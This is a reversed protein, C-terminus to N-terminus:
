RGFFTISLDSLKQCIQPLSLQTKFWLKLGFINPSLPYSIKSQVSSMNERTEVSSLM